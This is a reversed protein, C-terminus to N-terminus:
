WLSAPFAAKSGSAPEFCVDPLPMSPLVDIIGHSVAPRIHEAVEDLEMGDIYFHPTTQLTLADLYDYERSLLQFLMKQLSLKVSVRNSLPESQDARPHKSFGHVLRVTKLRSGGESLYSRRPLIRLNPRAHPLQSHDLVVTLTELAPLSTLVSSIIDTLRESYWAPVNVIWVERLKRLSSKDAVIRHLHQM